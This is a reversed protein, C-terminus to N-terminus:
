RAPPEPQLYAENVWGSYTGVSIQRWMTSGNTVRGPAIRIGRAGSRLKVVPPYASGPGARVNLGDGPPINVIRFTSTLAPASTPTPAVPAPQPQPMPAISSSNIPGLGAAASQKVAIARRASSELPTASAWPNAPLKQPPSFTSKTAEVPSQNAAASLVPSAKVTADRGSAATQNQPPINRLLWVVLLAVGIAYFTRSLSRRTPPTSQPPGPSTAAM